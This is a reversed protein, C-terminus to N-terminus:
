GEKIVKRCKAFLELLADAYQEPTNSGKVGFEAQGGRTKGYGTQVAIFKMMDLAIEDHKDPTEPAKAESM